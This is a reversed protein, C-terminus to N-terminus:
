KSNYFFLLLAVFFSFQLTDAGHRNEINNVYVDTYQLLEATSPFNFIFMEIVFHKVNMFDLKIDRSFDLAPKGISALMEKVSVLNKSVDLQVFAVIYM